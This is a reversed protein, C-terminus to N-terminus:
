NGGNTDPRVDAVPTTTSPIFIPAAPKEPGDNAFHNLAYWGNRSKDVMRILDAKSIDPNDKIIRAFGDHIAVQTAAQDKVEQSTCGTSIALGIVITTLAFFRKM